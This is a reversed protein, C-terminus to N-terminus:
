GTLEPPRPPDLGAVRPDIYHRAAMGATRHGLYKPAMGPSLQEIASAGSKRITKTGCKVGAAKSLRRMWGYLHDKGVIGGFPRVDDPRRILEMAELTKASLRFMKPWGTKQQFMAGAYAEEWTMRLMDSIRLGSDWIALILARLFLGRPIKSRRFRGATAAAAVLLRNVDAASLARPMPLPARIPKVSKPAHPLHGQEVGWRWLMLAMRRYSRLTQRSIPATAALEATLWENFPADRFDEAEPMRGGLHRAWRALACQYTVVSGPQLDHSLCYSRLLQDAHM